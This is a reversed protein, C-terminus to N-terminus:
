RFRRFFNKMMQSCEEQKIGETIDVIHNFRDDQLINYISGACGAKPNRTGYVVEKIRSQLIAGACMPCPEVTVFLTCEDLRWDNMYKCAEDIAIIEAHDLVNGNTLRLNYGKGIIENDFVIICGVPVEKEDYAKQALELAIEMYKNYDDTNM